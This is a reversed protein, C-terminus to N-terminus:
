KEKITKIILECIKETAKGTEFSGLKEHHHQMNHKHHTADFSLIQEQLEQYLM